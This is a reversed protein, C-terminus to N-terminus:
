EVSFAITVRPRREVFGSPLGHIRGIRNAVQLVSDDLAPNGSPRVLRVSQVVGGTGLHLELTAEADGVAARSPAEWATYLTQRILALGRGDADPISTRDSAQAGEALLRRIEEASLPNPSSPAPAPTPATAQRVVRNTNVQIQRPPRPPPAPQPAPAPRPPSPAPAPSDVALESAAPRVDVLFEIPIVRDPARRLCGSLFGYSILVVFAAAHVGSVVRLVKKDISQM